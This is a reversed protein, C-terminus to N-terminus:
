FILANPKDHFARIDVNKGILNMARLEDNSVPIIIISDQNDYVENVERLTQSLTEFDYRESRALFISRQVRLFGKKELFKSVYRRIKNNEIDYMIFYVMQTAKRETKVIGLMARLREDLPMLLEEDGPPKVRPAEKIGAAKMAMMKKLFSLAPNTNKQKAM